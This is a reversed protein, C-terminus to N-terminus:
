IEWVRQEDPKLSSLRTETGPLLLPTKGKEVADLGDRLDV